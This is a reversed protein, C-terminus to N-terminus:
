QSVAAPLTAAPFTVLDVSLELYHGSASTPRRDEVLHGFTKPQHVTLMVLDAVIGSTTSPEDWQNPTPGLATGLQM